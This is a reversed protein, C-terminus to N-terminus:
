EYKIKSMLIDVADNINNEDLLKVFLSGVIAGNAYNNALSYLENNSIGFGIM